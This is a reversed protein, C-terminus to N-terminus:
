ITTTINTVERSNIETHKRKVKYLKPELYNRFSYILLFVLFLAFLVKFENDPNLLEKSVSLLSYIQQINEEEQNTEEEGDSNTQLKQLEKELFEDDDENRKSSKKKTKSDDKKSKGKAKKGAKKTKPLNVKPAEQDEEDVEEEEVHSDEKSDTNNNETQDQEEITAHELVLDEDASITTKNKKKKSKKPAMTFTEVTAEEEDESQPKSRELLKKIQRNSMTKKSVLFVMKAANHFTSVIPHIFFFLSIGDKTANHLSNEM